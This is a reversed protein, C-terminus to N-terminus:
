IIKKYIVIFFIYFFDPFTKTHAVVKENSIFFNGWHSLGKTPLFSQFLPPTIRFTIWFNLWFFCAMIILIYLYSILFYVFYNLLKFSKRIWGSKWLNKLLIEDYLTLVPIENIQFSNIISSQLIRFNNRFIWVIM